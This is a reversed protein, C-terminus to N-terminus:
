ESWIPCSMNLKLAMKLIIIIIIIISMFFWKFYTYAASIFHTHLTANSMAVFILTEQSM